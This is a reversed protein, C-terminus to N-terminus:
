TGLSCLSKTSVIEADTLSRYEGAELSPDIELCGISLRHLSTIRNGVAHFMRKIQHYKGEYITVIASRPSLIELEAPLTTIDEYAFYFGEAFREAVETAIENETTVMYRKPIAMIPETLLKSWIGDNTLILLGTSEKDLRGAIHLQEGYSEHILDVVTQHEEDVTASVIGRPKNLMVYHAQESGLSRGECAVNSLANVEILNDRVVIANISVKGQAILLRASKSGCKLQHSIYKDLRM